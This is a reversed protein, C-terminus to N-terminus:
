RAHVVTAPPADPMTMWRQADALDATGDYVAQLWDDMTLSQPEHRKPTSPDANPTAKPMQSFVFAALERLTPYEYIKTPSLSVGLRNQIVPLWEVGIISDMGLDVFATNFGVDAARMYLAEALTERLIAEVSRLELVTATGSLAKAEVEAAPVEVRGTTVDAVGDADRNSATNQTRHRTGQLLGDYILEPAWYRERAFPYTPLRLKPPRLHVYLLDWACNAGTTWADLVQREEGRDLLSALDAASLESVVASAEDVVGYCCAELDGAVFAELKERLEAISGASLGLRHSFQERGTQLTYAIAKLDADGYTGSTVAALLLQASVRLREPDRASVVILATHPSRPDDVEARHPQLYEEVLLHANSGGAGFSSIAATRPFPRGQSDERAPWPALSRQLVLPTQAFDINQNLREAHLTPVLTSHQIQLLVKTLGAIGAASECHGINSKVSGIRIPAVGIADGECSMADQAGVRLARTLGAIEIPDGLATGTGHAEVYGIANPDVGSREIVRSILQAQAAASPVAFGNSRGGHNVGSGRIVGYIRDGDAIARELPKLVVAGVGEGPVYGDGGDGFPACRGNSSAFRAASLGLYKNPHLSVNVGGAIAIGCEGDQLSGCALHIATLSSSCMTDIAISPGRYNGFYSVRNAVSAIGSGLALPEGFVQAQAGYLQYETHMVGVFVGVSAGVADASRNLADRTYGTDEIAEQACMLFLREQPDMMPAERPSINFFKPDFDAVGDIFGGWKCYSKGFANRDPDYFDDLAWRDPPIEGVCDVGSKLNEWFAELTPSRPYRGALGIIAISSDALQRSSADPRRTVSAAVDSLPRADPTPTAAASTNVIAAAETPRRTALYSALEAVTAYEFFLTKSLPGHIKELAATLRVAVISDIGFGDFTDNAHIRTSAIMLHRSLFDRLVVTVDQGSTTSSEEAQEAPQGPSNATNLAARIEAPKGYAVALQPHDSALARKLAKLGSEADLPAFGQRQMEDVTEASVKMGGDAAWYPWGISLSRGSREGLAELAHRYQAYENLFANATAYAAQGVGGTRATMSSFQVFFDLPSRRTALDLNRAGAVKAALAERLETTSLRAVLRSHAVGACHVVGNLAGFHQTIEEVLEEVQARHAVDVCRYHVAMGPAAIQRLRERGAVGLFSRGVIVVTASSQTRAIDAVVASGLGGLGGTVLYVGRERWCVSEDRAPLEVERLADPCVIEAGDADMALTQTHLGASEAEAGRLLSALAAHLRGTGHKPVVLQLLTPVRERLASQIIDLLQEAYAAFREVPDTGPSELVSWPASAAFAAVMSAPMDCAVVRRHAVNINVFPKDSRPSAPVYFLTQPGASPGAGSRYARGSLGQIRVCVHGADDCLDIDTRAVISMSSARRVVAWCERPCPRLFHLSDLAFPVSPVHAEDGLPVDGVDFGAAQVASDLLSPHLGFRDAEANAVSPLRLRALVFRGLEDEGPQLEVLGRYSPGYQVGMAQLKRYCTEGLMPAAITAARLAVINLTPAQMPVPTEVSVCARASPTQRSRSADCREGVVSKEQTLECVLHDGQSKVHIHLELPDCGAVVPKLWVVDSIRVSAQADARADPSNTALAVAARAMELYAAAPIIRQGSVVHDALFPESGTFTSSFRVGQLTSTNRHVMPHLAREAVADTRSVTSPTSGGIWYREKAFPYTPLSIRRPKRQQYLKDWDIEAAATVWAELLREHEGRVLWADMLAQVDDGSMLTLTKRRRRADGIHLADIDSHGQLLRELKDRLEAMSRAVYALRMDMAERAIQLTYAVDALRDDGLTRCADLLRRAQERLRTEDKASLLVLFPGPAASPLSAPVPAIYEELVVFANAGGAGFSSVSAIRTGTTSTAPLHWPASARQLRFPGSEFAILPNVPEAHLSPVLQKHKLQLLVKTVGAVGAAAELHGLNSKVSGIACYGREATSDRFAQTLADVEIPDGLETGTGHAEVFSIDRAGIGAKHLTAKVLERQAAPNPVTYGKARGGHNIGTARIVGHIHDGDAVARSLRKLILVGVGEGPVFGDGGAGFSRCRGSTSLFRGECSAVYRSPHLNLNVGGAAAVECEDRLLHECAEHIATLSSSCMTDIPMSPGQLDLLYSVRNAVSGFSTQPHITDGSADQMSGCREFGSQSIGAFVGVRRGHKGALAARTYGADEFARWTEQLFLREHPDIAMAERPAIGFFLPDFDAFGDVFGGWKCYSKGEAIAKAPDPEYFGDLPWREIPIETVCDQGRDLCDWFADIDAAQPYRGSIGVIAIARDHTRADTRAGVPADSRHEHSDGPPRSTMSDVRVGSVSSAAPVSPPSPFSPAARQAPLSSWSPLLRRAAEPHAAVFHDAIATVTRHEFLVTSSVDHFTSRLENAVRIALISDVGYNELPEREDIEDNPQELTQAVVTRVFEIVAARLDGFESQLPSPALSETSALYGALSRVNHYEFVVTSSIDRYRSRLSNALRIALISDIGYNEFPEDIAVDELPFELAEAVRGRVYHVTDELSTARTREPAPNSPAGTGCRTDKDKPAPRVEAGKHRFVGDSEAIIIQQGFRHAKGVPFRVARFGEEELVRRWTDPALGPSGPERLWGDQYAWWGPLLGFTLHAFLEHGHMENVILLGNRGLASKVHRMTQHIDRTAHLVNTAIVIDYGGCDIGQEALPREIDLIRCHLWPAQARYEREAHALFARSIDTYGYESVSRALPRLAQFVRISTAGTGAGIELIRLRANPDARLRQEVCSAALAAVVRNFYDIFPNKKYVDEVRQLSANSFMVDTAECRGTLIDPLARLMPAILDAHARASESSGDQACAFHREVASWDADMAPREFVFADDGLKRMYGTRCLFGIAERLWRGYLAPKALRAVLSALSVEGSASGDFRAIQFFLGLALIADFGELEQKAESDPLAVQSLSDILVFRVATPLPAVTMTENMAIPLAAGGQPAIRKLLGLQEFPSSLASEIFPMAEAAEISGEGIHSMRRRHAASAVIGVSGWFGWNIVRAAALGKRRLLTATADVFVSGAAYSSQGPSPNFSQLASFFLVFDAPRYRALAAALAASTQIKSSLAELFTAEDVAMISRDHLRLASHVFGHIVAHEAEIHKLAAELDARQRGDVRLYSLRGGLGSLRRMADSIEDTIERRGLWVVNARYRRLVYETWAQGLGGAGGLVVYVGGDVIRTDSGAELAVPILRQQYVGGERVAISSNEPDAQGELVMPWLTEGIANCDVDHSDVASREFVSYSDVDIARVTWHAYEKSLSGIFGHVAAHTPDGCDAYRVALARVTIVSFHLPQTEYGEHLLAKTLRFCRLVQGDPAEDADGGQAFWVVHTPRYSRILSIAEDQGHVAELERVQASACSVRLSASLGTRAGVLLVRRPETSIAPRSLPGVCEWVPVLPVLGLPKDASTTTTSEVVTAISPHEPTVAASDVKAVNTSTEHAVRASLGLIEVAVRGDEDCIRVDLKSVRDSSGAAERVHAWAQDGPAHLVRVRDVSFPLTQELNSDDLANECLAFGISAQLASDLLGPHLVFRGDRVAEKPLILQGLAFRTGDPMIGSRADVLARLSPGYRCGLRDFLAYCAEGSIAHECNARLAALNLREQSAETLLTATGECHVCEAASDLESYIQFWYSFDERAAIRVHVTAPRPGVILARLWGVNSFTIAAGPSSIAQAVAARAIELYAVGPLTRASRVEHDAFIFEDGHFVSTYRHEALSSTNHHLLPHLTAAGAPMAAGQPEHLRRRYRTPAFPYTPLSIRRPKGRGADLRTWDIDIGRMWAAAIKRLQGSEVWHPLLQAVDEADLTANLAAASKEGTADAFGSAGTAVFARLGTCLEKVTSAELAVRCAFAERGVQLTYAVDRLDLNGHCELFALMEAAYASLREPKRASLPVLCCVPEAASRTEAHFEELLAHANTGGIGFSSVGARHPIARPPLAVGTAVVYFPSDPFDIATNPRHYNLSPPIQGHLLSLAVKICGALGAVTDLHGINSKVSGIGCFQRRKTHRGFAESLAALELPDGLKTATGHAEVYDITEVEVGTGRLVKDIVNAQGIVSPAYYGAKDGGDNNVAVGRLLAYIPDEDTIAESARKLLLVAVGEGGLMGDAGADFPRLHGDSSFNMGPEAIYGLPESESLSAAGVLAHKADGAMLSRYATQLAVLSSSCNSHVFLSPGRLGLRHSILTPISGSQSWASAVYEKSGGMLTWSTPPADAHYGANAATMFVGADAIESTRYGADEVAKWSHQLLLRLQPDMAQADQASVHFFEADFCDKNQITARAGVLGPKALLDEPVGRSRLSEGSLIEISEVCNCLNDWFQRHDRAGPLNCSMGIIAVCDDIYPPLTESSTPRMTADAQPTRADAGARLASIHEGIRRVSALRLLTTVDFSLDFAEAIRRAVGVALISDGGIEFFGADLPVTDLRLIVSVISCLKTEIDTDSNRVTMTPLKKFLKGRWRAALARRDVKGNVNTPLQAEFEVLTPVMYDPLRDAVHRRLSQADPASARSSPVIFAALQQREELLVVACQVVGPHSQAAAEVEGLEVRSGRIKVQADAREVFQLEGDALLRVRDGTRYIRTGPSGFPNAIFCEATLGARRLYGRALLAGGVFLEGVDGPAVKQLTQPDLVYTTTETIATGIPVSGSAFTSQAAPDCSKLTACVTTETPGYANVFRCRRMWREALAPPCEEGAVILTRLHPLDVTELLTVASPPLTAVAVRAGQMLDALQGSRLLSGDPALYLTAGAQLAMAIEWVSADFSWPAFQLVREGAKVGFEKAQTRALNALGEHTLAVGKPTGTSGSTYVIYALHGPAVPQAVVADSGEEATTMEELILLRAAPCPLRDHLGHRTIVTSPDADQLVFRLREPPLEPDLALYAAGAKWVGLLACLADASRELLLAVIRDAGVGVRRLRAAIVDSRTDLEGYTLGVSDHVAALAEPFHRAQERILHHLPRWVPQVHSEPSLLSPASFAQATHMATGISAVLSQLWADVITEPLRDADHDFYLIYGGDREAVKFALPYEGEQYLGEVPDFRVGAWEQQLARLAFFHRSKYEFVTDFLDGHGSNLQRLERAVRQFPYDAHGLAEAMRAHTGNLRDYLASAPDITARVVVLNVFCGVTGDFGAHPRREVPMGVTVDPRGSITALLAQYMSLFFAAPTIRLRTCLASLAEGTGEDLAHRVTRPRRAGGPDASLGLMAGAGELTRRWYLRSTEGQASAVFAREWRVFDDFRNSATPAPESAPLAARASAPLAARAYADCLTRLFAEVSGGDFAIHHVVILLMSVAPGQAYLDARMLPGEDLAFPVRLRASMCAMLQEDSLHGTDHVAFLLTEPAVGRRQLRGDREVIASALVEHTRLVEVCASKLAELDLLGSLRLCFPINYAFADPRAAQLM